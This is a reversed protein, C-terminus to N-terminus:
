GPLRQRQALGTAGQLTVTTSGAHYPANLTFRFQQLGGLANSGLRGHAGGALREGGASLKWDSGLLSAQVTSGPADLGRAGGTTRGTLLVRPKSLAGSVALTYRGALYDTLGVPGGIKLTPFATGSLQASVLPTTNSAAGGQYAVAANQVSLVGGSYRAPLTFDAGAIQGAASLRVDSLTGRLTGGMHGSVGALPQLDAAAFTGKLQWATLASSKGSANQAQVDLSLGSM